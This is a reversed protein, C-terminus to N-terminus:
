SAPACIAAALYIFTLKVLIKCALVDQVDGLIDHLVLVRVGPGFGNETTEFLALPVDRFTRAFASSAFSTTLLRNGRVSKVWFVSTM